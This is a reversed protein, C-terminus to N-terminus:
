SERTINTLLQKVQSLEDRMEQLQRALELVQASVHELGHYIPIHPAVHRRQPRGVIVPSSPLAPDETERPATWKEM